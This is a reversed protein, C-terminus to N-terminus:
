VGDDLVLGLDSDGINPFAAPRPPVVSVWWLRDYILCGEVAIQLAGWWLSAQYNSDTSPCNSRDIDNVFNNRDLVVVLVENIIHVVAWFSM